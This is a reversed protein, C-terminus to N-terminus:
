AFLGYEGHFMNQSLFNYCAAFVYFNLRVARIM